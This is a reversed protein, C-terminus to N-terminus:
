NVEYIFLNNNSSSYIKKLTNPEYADLNGQSLVYRIDAKKLDNENMYIKFVDGGKLEFSTSNQTLEVIIHAYRNYVDSFKKTEDLKEWMNIDPYYQVSNFSKVGLSILYQGNVLSNMAAWKASPNLEKIRIIEKSIDHRYISDTGRAIPNVAAGSIIVPIIVFIALFKKKGRLLLYNLLLYYLLTVWSFTNGLYTYMESKFLSIYSIFAVIICILFTNYRSLAKYKTLISALWIFLYLSTLGSIMTALRKEPVFSFLTYKGVFIPYKIVFWSIQFILYIFLTLMLYRNYKEKKYVLFFSLIIAPSFIIFNSVESNNWFNVDKFPVLWDILFLSLYKPNYEGGTTIRQGPYVTSLMIKISDYSQYIFLFICACFYFICVFFMIWELKNTILKKYNPLLIFGLFILVLYGLPVQVPPYIGMVFGIMSLFMLSMFLIRAPQNNYNKIYYLASVIIGQSYIITDVFSTSYWWQIVPSFVILVVGIISILLNRNSLFLAMEFSLLLLLFFRINWFWSLGYDKGFLLFGWYQPKALLDISITPTNSLLMNQGDSRINDNIIPFNDKSQTQALLWPTQVLWEDSRIARPKGEIVISNQAKNPELYSDWMGISSGHIKGLVLIVFLLLAILYRYKFIFEKYRNVFLTILVIFLIGLFIKLLRTVKFDFSYLPNITLKSISLTEGPRNTVDIRLSNINLHQKLKIKFEEQNKSINFIFSKEESYQLDESTTYFVQFLGGSKLYEMKVAIARSDINLNKIEVWPDNTISLYNSNPLSELDKVIFKNSEIDQTIFNSNNMFFFKYNFVFLEAIISVLLLLILLISKRKKFM